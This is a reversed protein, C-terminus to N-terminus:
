IVHLRDLRHEGWQQFLVGHLVDVVLGEVAYLHHHHHHFTHCISIYKRVSAIVLLSNCKMIYNLQKGM